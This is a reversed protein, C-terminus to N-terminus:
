ESRKLARYVALAALVGGAAWLVRPQSVTDWVDTAVRGAPRFRLYDATRELRRAIAHAEEARDYQSGLERIQTAVNEVRDAAEQKLEDTPPEIRERLQTATERAIGRATTKATKEIVADETMTSGKEEPATPLVGDAGTHRRAIEPNVAVRGNLAARTADLLDDASATKSVYGVAGVRLAREAYVREDHMSWIMSAITPDRDRIREVLELGSGDALELDTIVLDPRDADLHDIASEISDAEGCLEVSDDMGILERLGRRMLPHDDVILIRRRCRHPRLSDSIV